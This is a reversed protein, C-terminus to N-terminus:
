RGNIQEFAQVYYANPVQQLNYIILTKFWFLINKLFSGLAM